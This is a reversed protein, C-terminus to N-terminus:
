KVFNEGVFAAEFSKEPVLTAESKKPGQKLFHNAGDGEGSLQDAAPEDSGVGGGVVRRM